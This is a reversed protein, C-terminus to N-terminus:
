SKALSVMEVLKETSEKSKGVYLIKDEAFPKVKEKGIQTDKRKRVETCQSNAGTHHQRPPSFLFRQSTELSQTFTNLREGNFIINDTNQWCEKDAWPLSGKIALHKKKDSTMFPHEIKDFARGEDKEEKKRHICPILCNSKWINFCDANGSDIGSEHHMISEIFQQIHYYEM